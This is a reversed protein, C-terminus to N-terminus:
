VNECSYSFYFRMCEDHISFYFRMGEYSYEFASDWANMWTNLFLTEYMWIFTRMWLKICVHVRLLFIFLFLLFLIDDMWGCMRFVILLFYLWVCKWCFSCFLDYRMREHMEFLILSWAHMWAYWCSFWCMCFHEWFSVGVNVHHEDAHSQYTVRKVNDLNQVWMYYHVLNLVHLLTRWFENWYGCPTRRCIM